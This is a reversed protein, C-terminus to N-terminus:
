ETLAADEVTTLEVGNVTLTLRRGIAKAALENPERGPRVATSRTWPLLDSWRDGDRRWMGVLGKDGVEFVYYRGTQLRGDPARASQDRLILGYGGGEPGRTKRFLGTVLVDRFMGPLPARVSVFQGPDRTFLRYVGDGVWAPGRPDDPWGRRNDQ